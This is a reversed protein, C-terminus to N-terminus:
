YVPEPNGRIYASFQDIGKIYVPQDASEHIDKLIFWSSPDHYIGLAGFSGARKHQPNINALLINDSEELVFISYGPSPMGNGAYGFVRINNCNRMEMVGYDGESKVAYIDVNSSGDMEVMTTGRGHQPELMYFRLPEKTNNIYLHRYSPGQDWWHLLVNTFWKGGGSEEIRIMPYGMATGHPHIESRIPYVNRVVSHRGARWRIAYVCPNRAPVLLKMFALITKADPDNVTEILPRPNDPDSFAKAEELPTIITQVNGLGILRSSSNLLLPKSVAYTGKPIFVIENEDLAKQIAETDDSEGDGKANYPADKVNVAAPSLPSPFPHPWDHRSILESPDASSASETIVIAKSLSIGDQWIDDRWIEKGEENAFESGSICRRIHLWGAPNSDLEWNNSIKVAKSANHIFVNEMIVSHNSEVATGGDSIELAADVINLSGNWKVSPAGASLIGKGTIYAGVVTLPGRGNYLISNEEQGSLRIASVVPSPQSGSREDNKFYFGYRGGEVSVGHIAGGSGPANQLGAFAGYARINVKEIVSGEAGQHNIAIAGPNGEGLEFDLNMIKQNFNINPQSKSKDIEGYEMRAWFHLVPRPNEPDGFGPAHDALVMVAREGESPGIIVNPYEFSAYKLLPDAFGEYHWEDWEITGQIGRITNSVLYRGAPLYLIMRSDRADKLAQQIIETVDKSGTPDANYPSKTVDLIGDRALIPEDYQKLVREEVKKLDSVKRVFADQDPVPGRCSFIMLVSLLASIVKGINLFRRTIFSFLRKPRTICLSQFNNM